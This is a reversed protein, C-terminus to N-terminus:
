VFFEVLSVSQTFAQPNDSELIEELKEDTVQHGAPIDLFQSACSNHTSLGIKLQRQIKEKNKDRYEEEERNYDQM